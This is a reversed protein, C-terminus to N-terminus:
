AEIPEKVMSLYFTGKKEEQKEALFKEADARQPYPFEKIRKSGNDFVVWVAKMRPPEKVRSRKAAPKKPTAAKKVAPKKAAPKKKKKPADEDDGGEDDSEEEETEEVEDEDKERAEAAENQDRLNRRDLTRKRAM